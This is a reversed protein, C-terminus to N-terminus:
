VNNINSVIIFCYYFLVIIFCSFLRFLNLHYYYFSFLFLLLLYYFILYRYLCLASEYVSINKLLVPDVDSEQAGLLEYVKVPQQKGVVRIADVERTVFHNKVEKYTFESLLIRVGYSKTIGEIRSALNVGDGIVTYELRKDSGINGSLVKGTNIGIGISVPPEGHAKRKENFIHLRRLMELASICAIKSFLYILLNM